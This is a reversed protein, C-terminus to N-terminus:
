IGPAGDPCVGAVMSFTGSGTNFILGNFRLIANVAIPPLPAAGSSTPPVATSSSTYVTITSAGSLAAFASGNTLTLTYATYSGV